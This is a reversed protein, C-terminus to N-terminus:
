ASTRLKASERRTALFLDLAEIIALLAILTEVEVSRQLAGIGAALYWIVKAYMMYHDLGKRYTWPRALVYVAFSFPTIAAGWNVLTKGFEEM